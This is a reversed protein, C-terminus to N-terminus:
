ERTRFGVCAGAPVEVGAPPEQAAVVADPGTPDGAAVGGDVVQLGAREVADAAAALDLGVVDPVPVRDGSAGEPACAPHFFFLPVGDVRAHLDPGRPCGGASDLHVVLGFDDVDVVEYDGREGVWARGFGLGVEISAADYRDMLQARQQELVRRAAAPDLVADEIPALADAGPDGGDISRVISGACQTLAADAARASVRFGCLPELGNPQVLPAPCRDPPTLREPDPLFWAAQSRDLAVADHLVGGIPLTIVETENREVQHRGLTVQGPGQARSSFYFADGDPSWLLAGYADLPPTPVSTARGSTTDVVVLRESADSSARRTVLRRGDPSFVADAISGPADDDVDITTGDPFSRLHLTTCGSSCWALQRASSALAFGGPLSDTVTASAADWLAVGGAGELALGGPIAVQAHAAQPWTGLVTGDVGVLDVIGADGYPPDPDARLVWAADADVAPWAIFPAPGLTVPEGGDLPVVSPPGSTLLSAGIRALRVPADGASQSPLRRRGVTGTDLDVATVGDYGDDFLLVVGSPSSFLAAGIDPQEATVLSDQDDSRALLAAGSGVIVVVLVAAGATRRRRRQRARRAVAGTVDSEPVSGVSAQLRDRLDPM